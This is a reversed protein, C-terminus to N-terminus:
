SAMSANFSFDYLIIKISQKIGTISPYSAVRKIRFDSFRSTGIRWFPFFTKTMMIEFGIKAFLQRLRFDNMMVPFYGFRSRQFLGFWSWRRVGTIMLVGDQILCDYCERLLIENYDEANVLGHALYIYDQTENLIPLNPFQAVVM